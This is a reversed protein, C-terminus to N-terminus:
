CGTLVLVANQGGFGYSASVAAGVSVARPTKAVVDLDIDIDTDEHNATPPILGRQVTMVTIAAEIAGAGGMAHGIAGKLSTVPPPTRFVTRLARAEALDNLRTATGHANVHAIDGPTLGADTIAAGLAAAAGKGHPDPAAYHVADCSAAYGDLYARPRVGRARAHEARELVLVAAGESLVFGDRASDFPRGARAPDDTRRSLAGMRHFAAASAPFRASEAGGTVVIDCTGSRLLDRAVGIATGGSACATSVSFNPGTAGVDLAIEAASMNPVSRPITLPSVDLPSSEYLKRLEPVVRELSTAGTGIVVGVRAPEWERHDLAADALAQRAAVVAMASFRDLRWGSARVLKRPDFDPVKCSIDVPMGALEEDRSSTSVGRLLTQWTSELDLGAPSVVGLGTVATRTM